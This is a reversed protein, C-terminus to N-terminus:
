AAIRVPTAEDLRVVVQPEGAVFLMSQLQDRVMRHRIPDVFFTAALHQITAHLLVRQTAAGASMWSLPSDDATGLVAVFPADIIASGSSTKPALARAPAPRVTAGLMAFLTEVSLAEREFLALESPDATPFVSAISRAGRSSDTLNAARAVIDALMTRRCDDSVVDIWCNRSKAAHLFVATHAPALRTGVLASAAPPM